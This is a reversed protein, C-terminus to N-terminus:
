LSKCWEILRERNVRISREGFARTVGPVKGAAVLEYAKSRGVGMIAAAEEVTILLREDSGKTVDIVM